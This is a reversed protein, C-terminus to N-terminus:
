KNMFDAGLTPKYNTVFSNLVFRKILATKGVSIIKGLKDLQLM